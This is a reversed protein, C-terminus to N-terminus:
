VTVSSFALPTAAVQFKFSLFCTLSFLINAGVESNPSASDQWCYKKERSNETENSAAGNIPLIDRVM